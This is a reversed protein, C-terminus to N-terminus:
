ICIGVTNTNRSELAQMIVETIHDYLSIPHKVGVKSSLFSKALTFETDEPLFQSQISATPPQKDKVVSIRQFIAEAEPQAVESNANKEFENEAITEPLADLLRETDAMFNPKSSADTQIIDSM